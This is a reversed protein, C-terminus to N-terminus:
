LEGKEGEEKQLKTDKITCDVSSGEKNFLMKYTSDCFAPLAINEAEILDYSKSKSM